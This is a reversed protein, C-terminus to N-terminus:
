LVLIHLETPAEVKFSCLIFVINVIKHEVRCSSMETAFCTRGTAVKFLPHVNLWM